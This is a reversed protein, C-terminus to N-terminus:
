KLTEDLRDLIIKWQKDTPSKSDLADAFGKFWVLFELRSEVHASNTEGFSIRNPRLESYRPKDKITNAPPIAM